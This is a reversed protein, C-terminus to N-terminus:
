KGKKAIMHCWPQYLSGRFCLRDGETTQRTYSVPLGDTPPEPLDIPMAFPQFRGSVFYDTVHWQTRAYPRSYVTLGLPHSVTREVIEVDQGTHPHYWDLAIFTGGPNLAEAVSGLADCFTGWDFLYCVANAVIVDYKGKINLMDMLSFHVDPVNARACAISSDALDGGTLHLGLAAQSMHKLLNGTSCGIDLLHDGFKSNERVLQITVKDREAPEKSYRTQYANYSELFEENKVYKEYESM